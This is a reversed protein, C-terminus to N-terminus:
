REPMGWLGATTIVLLAVSFVAVLRAPVRGDTTGSTMPADWGLCSLVLQAYNLLDPRM